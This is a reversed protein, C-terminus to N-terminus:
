RKIIKKGTKKIKRVLYQKKRLFSAKSRVKYFNYTVTPDTPEVFEYGKNNMYETLLSLTKSEDTLDITQIGCQNSLIKIREVYDSAVTRKQILAHYLLTYLYDISNPMYFGRENYMRANLIDQCWKSDYYGDGISRIDVNIYSDGVSVRHQVRNKNKTTPIGKLVMKAVDKDEVLIDLDSHKGLQINQPLEEFNRLIVYNFTHNMVYLLEAFNKWGNNGILNTIVTDTKCPNIFGNSRLDDPSVGLLLTIDHAAETPSNTAHIVNVTTWSRYMEKSDFMNINVVQTGQNTRRPGYIPHNDEVIVIQFPGIGCENEKNSNKPLNRGYFRRLNESFSDSSWEVTWNAKICFRTSIDEIIRNLYEKGNNWIIFLHLEAEEKKVINLM